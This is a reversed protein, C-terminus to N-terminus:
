GYIGNKRMSPCEASTLSWILTPTNSFEARDGDRKV